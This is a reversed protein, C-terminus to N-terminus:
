ATRDTTELARPAIAVTFRSKAAPPQATPPTSPPSAGAPGDLAAAASPASSDPGDVSLPERQGRSQEDNRSSLLATVLLGALLALVVVVSVRVRGFLHRKSGFTM